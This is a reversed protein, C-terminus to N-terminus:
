DECVGGFNVVQSTYLFDKKLLNEKIEQIEGTPLASFQITFYDWQNRQIISKDNLYDLAENVDKKKM